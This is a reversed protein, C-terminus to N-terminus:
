PLAEAVPPLTVAPDYIILANHRGKCPYRGPPLGGRGNDPLWIEVGAVDGALGGASALEELQQLRIRIRM